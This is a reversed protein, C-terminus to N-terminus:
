PSRLGYKRLVLNLSYLSIVGCFIICVIYFYTSTIDHVGITYYELSKSGGYNNFIIYNNESAAGVTAKYDLQIGHDYSLSWELDTFRSNSRFLVTLPIKYFNKIKIKWFPHGHEPEYVFVSYNRSVHKYGERDFVSFIEHDDILLSWPGDNSFQVTINNTASDLGINTLSAVHMEYQTKNFIIGQTKIPFGKNEIICSANPEVDSLYNVYKVLVHTNCPNELLFYPTKHIEHVLSRDEIKNLLDYSTANNKSLLINTIGYRNFDTLNFSSVYSAWEVHDRIQQDPIINFVQNWRLRPRDVWFVHAGTLWYLLESVEPPALFTSGSDINYANKIENMDKVMSMDFVSNRKENLFTFQSSYEFLPGLGSLLFLFIMVVSLVGMRNKIVKMVHILAVGACISSIFVLYNYWRYYQLLTTFGSPLISYILYTCALPLLTSVMIIISYNYIQGRNERFIFTYIYYVTLMPIVGLSWIIDSIPLDAENVLSTHELSGFDAGNYIVPIFWLSFIVLIVGFTILINKYRAYEDRYVYLYSIFTFILLIFLSPPYLLGNIGAVVSFVRMFIGSKLFLGNYLLVMSLLLLVLSFERPRSLGAMNLPISLTIGFRGGELLSVSQFGSYLMIFNVISTREIFGATYYSIFKYLILYFLM